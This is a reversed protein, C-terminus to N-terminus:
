GHTRGSGAYYNNIRTMTVPTSEGIWSGQTNYGFWEIAMVLPDDDDGCDETFQETLIEICKDSDYIAVPQKYQQGGIGIFAADLNDFLIIEEDPFHEDVFNDIDERTISM